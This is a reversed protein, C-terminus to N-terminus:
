FLRSNVLRHPFRYVWMRNMPTYIVVCKLIAPEKGDCSKPLVDDQPFSRSESDSTRCGCKKSKVLYEYKITRLSSIVLHM